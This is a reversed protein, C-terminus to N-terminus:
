KLVERIAEAILPIGKRINDPSTNCFSLRINNNRIGHPDFTKGSVGVAGKEIAKKLVVTSDVGEPLQLWMYFGGRPINFTVNEPLHAKLVEAMVAARKKYEARVKNVYEYVMGSELFKHALMQAFSSSCADMTQKILECKMYIEEPVLMWGLRLGPGLIKSFSGTYCVDVGDPNMEKIAKLHQKDEEYFYLESYVDDEILPINRDKLLRVLANKTEVTYLIGAPNHFNPAIYILAPKKDTTDLEIGLREVSIGEPSLPVSLLDAQYSKFTAIAGVFSPNEMVVKDGPNVFAKTLINIAQTSGTTVLIKNNDVPLNRRRLFEKLSELLQPLGNTPSYQMAIQKEKESLSNYIIDMEKIPFLENDPMGGSFLIMGKKSTLSMLDRIESSLLNSVSKSFITM